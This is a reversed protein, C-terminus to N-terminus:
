SKKVIKGNKLWGKEHALDVLEAFFYPLPRSSSEIWCSNLWVHSIVKFKAARRSVEKHFVRFATELSSRPRMDKLGICPTYKTKM